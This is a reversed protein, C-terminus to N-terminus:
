KTFKIVFKSKHEDKFEKRYRPIYILEGNKDYIGPWMVRLHLPVKWDILLRRVSCEYDGILYADDNKVPQITLPYSSSKINREDAGERFDIVFLEDEYPESNELLVEYGELDNNDILYIDDYEKAIFFRDSLPILINSKESAFAKRIEKVFSKSIDIHEGRSEIYNSIFLVIDEDSLLDFFAKSCSERVEIKKNQAQREKIENM